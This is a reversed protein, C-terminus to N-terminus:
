RRPRERSGGLHRRGYTRGWFSFFVVMVFGGAVGMAVAYAIVQAETTRPSACGPRRGDVGHLLRAPPAAIRAGRARRGRLQRRPRVGGHLRALLLLDLRRIWARRSDVRQLARHGVRGTRLNREVGRVGLLGSQPACRRANRGGGGLGGRYRCANAAGGDITVGCSEPTSRVLFWALPALGGGIALGVALWSVRWGSTSTLWGVTPFAMMFGVSMVVTYVAMASPLRRAFWKGVAALSVVSLASQGLGRTLTILVVLLWVSSTQSILVVTTGLALSVLTLISRSGFRDVMRGVGLCFISGILTAILNMEAFRVRDIRLDQMLPETILGLGQTRGPLAGVMALAAVTVTVWGYYFTRPWFSPSPLATAHQNTM